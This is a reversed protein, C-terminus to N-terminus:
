DGIIIKRDAVSLGTDFGIFDGEDNRNYWILGLSRTFDNENDNYTLTNPVCVIEVGTNTTDITKGIDM